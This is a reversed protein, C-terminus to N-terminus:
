PNLLPSHADFIFGRPALFRLVVDADGEPLDPFVLGGWPTILAEIEMKAIMAAWPAPIADDEVRAGLTVHGEPAGEPLWGIPQEAAPVGGIGSQAVVRSPLSSLAAPVAADALSLPQAGFASVQCGEELIRVHVDAGEAWAAAGETVAVCVGPAALQVSRAVARARPSLPSAVLTGAEPAVNLPGVRRTLEDIDGVRRLEVAGPVLHLHGDALESALKALEHWLASDLVGGHPRLTMFM